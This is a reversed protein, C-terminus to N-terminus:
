AEIFRPLDGKRPGRVEIREGLVIEMGDRSAVVPIGTEEELYAAEKEPDANLMRMGFHTLVACGPRAEEIIRLTDDTCLHYKLPNDRPWMTCVALLRVGRYIEGIEPFYATDSTYGVTGAEPAEAIFGATEPDTHIAKVAEFRIGEVTFTHGPRLPEITGVLNQHYTSISPDCDDNGRLVSAPAALVGRKDRTGHTMAEILVEADTYHDPHCHTVILGDLKQPSLRTWNSFVVAGPGPDVHVHTDGHVLRIGATRRRQTIMTFRGGGTGLFHINLPNL